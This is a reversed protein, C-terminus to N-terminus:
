VVSVPEPAHTRVGTDPHSVDQPGEPEKKLPISVPNSNHFVAPVDVQLPQRGTILMYQAPYASFTQCGGSRNNNEGVNTQYGYYLCEFM